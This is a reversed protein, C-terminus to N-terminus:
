DAPGPSLVNGHYNACWGSLKNAVGAAGNSNDRYPNNGANSGTISAFNHFIMGEAAGVTINIAWGVNANDGLPRYFYNDHIEGLIAGVPGPLYIGIDGVADGYNRFINYRITSHTPAYLNICHGSILHGFLNHEVVSRSFECGAFQYIGISALHEEGFTNDHIWVGRYATGTIEICVPSDEGGFSFGAIETGEAGAQLEIIPTVTAQILRCKRATAPITAGIIHVDAINIVITGPEEAESDLVYIYDGRGDECQTLAYTITKWPTSPDVGNWTDDGSAHSVYFVRGLGQPRSVAPILSGKLANSLM